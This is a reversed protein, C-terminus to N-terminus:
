QSEDKGQSIKKSDKKDDEKKLEAIAFGTSKLAAEIKKKNTKAPDYQIDARNEKFSVTCQTIGDVSKAAGEKQRQNLQKKSFSWNKEFSRM